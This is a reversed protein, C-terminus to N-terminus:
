RVRLLLHRKQKKNAWKYSAYRDLKNLYFEDASM